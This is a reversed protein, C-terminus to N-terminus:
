ASRYERNRGTRSNAWFTFFWLDAPVEPVKTIRESNKEFIVRINALYCPSRNTDSQVCWWELRGSGAFDDDFGFPRVDDRHRRQEFANTTPLM